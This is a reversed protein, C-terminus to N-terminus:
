REELLKLRFVLCERADTCASRSASEIESCKVVCRDRQVEGYM